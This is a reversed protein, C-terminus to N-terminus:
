KAKRSLMILSLAYFLAATGVLILIEVLPTFTFEGIKFYVGMELEFHTRYAAAELPFATDMPTDMIIRRFLAASHSIPVLKVIFQVATPFNGIPMYIGALFGIVTGVVTSATGFATQTKFLSTMFFVMSTNALTSLLIMGLVELSAVFGILYGDGLFLYLDLLVFAVLCMLVGIVYSSLIYGGVLSTRKLPSASFDKFIKKVKDDVMTGFAGMTTTFSIVSLIGAMLWSDMLQEPNPVLGQLGTTWIKGLFLAYLGIIIMVSLLSFFVSTKDRFYVKINRLAFNIM